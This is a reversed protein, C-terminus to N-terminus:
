RFGSKLFENEMAWGGDGRYKTVRGKSNFNEVVDHISYIPIPSNNNLLINPYLKSIGHANYSSDPIYGFMHNFLSTAIYFKSKVLCLASNNVSPNELRLLMM